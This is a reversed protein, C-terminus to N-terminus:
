PLSYYYYYNRVLCFDGLLTELAYFLPRLLNVVKSFDGFYAVPGGPADRYTIFSNVIPVASSFDFTEREISTKEESVVLDPLTYIGWYAGEKRAPAGEGRKSITSRQRMRRWRLRPVYYPCLSALSRALCHIFGANYVIQSTPKSDPDCLDYDDVGGLQPSLLATSRGIHSTPIHTDDLTHLVTTVRATTPSTNHPAGGATTM